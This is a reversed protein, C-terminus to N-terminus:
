TRLTRVFYRLYGALGAAAAVGLLAVLLYPWGSTRSMWAAWLGFLLSMVISAAIMVKHLTVLQM